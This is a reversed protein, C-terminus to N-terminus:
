EGKTKYEILIQEIMQTPTTQVLGKEKLFVKEAEKVIEETIRYQKKMKDQEKTIRNIKVEYAKM